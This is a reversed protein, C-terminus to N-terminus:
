LIQNNFPPLSTMRSFLVTFGYLSTYSSYQVSSFLEFWLLSISSYIDATMDKLAKKIHTQTAHNKQAHIGIRMM